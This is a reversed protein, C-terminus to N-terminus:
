LKQGSKLAKLHLVTYPNEELPMLNALPCLKLSRLKSLLFLSNQPVKLKTMKGNKYGKLFIRICYKMQFSENITKFDLTALLTALHYTSKLISSSLGGSISVGITQPCNESPQM